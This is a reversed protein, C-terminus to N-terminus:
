HKGVVIEVYGDQDLSALSKGIIRGAQADNNVRAWGDIDSVLIDGPKAPARVRCKVRGVLALKVVHKGTLGANMIYAPNESVVGAVRHSNPDQCITIEQTGGFMMVIGPEYDSDSLYLEALDAYQASTAQAFVTNFYSTSNGINGTANGGANTIGIVELGSSKFTGVINGAINAAINGDSATVRMSSTGFQISTADIGTLQSGNGVFYSAQINGTATVNSGVGINGATVNATGIDIAGQINAGTLNTLASGNGSFSGYVTSAQIPALEYSPDTININGQPEPTYGQFFAWVGTSVNRFVGTHSYTGDNYNGVIGIQVNTPAANGSWEDNLTHGTTANFEISINNALLQSSGTIDVNVAVNTVFNDTSWAFTDVGSNGTGVGDIKVRFNTTGSGDYHGVFVGDNLGSGTFTTGSPGITDGSGLYIFANAVELNNTSTTTTTGYVSLNGAVTVDADFRSDGVVRWTEASENEVNIYICGNSADVVLVKGVQVPFFPYTPSVNALGGPTTPSVHLIDGVTFTSTDIAEILGDTQIFGTGGNTINGAALGVTGYSTAFANAIALAITPIGAIDAGTFYVAQGAVIDTGSTNKVKQVTDQGVALNVGQVSNYYTIADLNNDYFMRGERYVPASSTTDFDFVNGSVNGILDVGGSHWTQITVDNVNSVINGNSAIVQVRSNGFQISTADIGTLQSGNGIFYNGAVNGIATVNGIISANGLASLEGTQIEFNVADVMIASADEAFVSGKVDGDFYGYHTGSTADVLVSSDEGLVSGELDGQIKGEVTIGTQSVVMVNATTDIDFRITGNAVPIDVQSLANALKSAEGVNAIVNSLYRGDGFFFGNNTIINGEAVLQVLNGLETINPQNATLLTGDINTTVFTPCTITDGVALNGNIQLATLNGLSTIFPQASTTINGAINSATLNGIIVNGLIVAGGVTLTGGVTLNSSIDTENSEFFISDTSNITTIVYDGQVRKYTAM